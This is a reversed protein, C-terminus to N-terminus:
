FLSCSDYGFGMLGLIFEIILPLLFALAAAILRKVFRGQAKKMEDDKDAGIAKIFDIIGLIIVVVPLIYKMWRLINRIWVLLRESFGCDGTNSGLIGADKKQEYMEKQKELCETICSKESPVAYNYTSEIAKCYTKLLEEKESLDQAIKSICSRNDKNDICKKYEEISSDFQKSYYGLNECAINFTEGDGTYILSQIHSIHSNYEKLNSESKGIYYMVPVNPGLVSYGTALSDPCKVVNDEQTINIELLTIAYLDNDGNIDEEKSGFVETYSEVYPTGSEESYGIVLETYEDDGSSINKSKYTCVEAEVISVSILFMTVFCFLKLIKRM